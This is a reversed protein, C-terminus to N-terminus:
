GGAAAKKRARIDRLRPCAEKHCGERWHKAQCEASCYRVSMCRGCAHLKAGASPAGGCGSCGRPVCGAARGSSGGGDAPLYGPSGELFCAGGDQSGVQLRSGAPKERDHRAPDVVAAAAGPDVAAAEAGPDVVAAAAGPDVAAAGRDVAATGPDVAATGPDVAPDGPDM